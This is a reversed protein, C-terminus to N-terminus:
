LHILPGILMIISRTKEASEKNIEKLNIKQPIIELDNEVWTVSIGISQLVEVMRNVEEIRPVNKIITKGSNLLSACIVGM